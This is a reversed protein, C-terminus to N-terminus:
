AAMVGRGPETPILKMQTSALTYLAVKCPQGDRNPVTITASHVDYGAQRLDWVRAAARSIGLQTLAQMATIPGRRLAALMKENQKASM